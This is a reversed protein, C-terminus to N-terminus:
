EKAEKIFCAVLGYTITPRIWIETLMYATYEDTPELIIDLNYLAAILMDIICIIWLKRKSYTEWDKRAYFYMLTLLLLVSLIRCALLIPYYALPPPFLVDRLLVAIGICVSCWYNFQQSTIRFNFFYMWMMVLCAIYSLNLVLEPWTNKLGFHGVGYLMIGVSLVAAVATVAINFIDSKKKFRLEM